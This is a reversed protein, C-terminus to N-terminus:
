NESYLLHLYTIIITTNMWVAWHEGRETEALHDVEGEGKSKFFHKKLALASNSRPISFSFFCKNIKGQLIGLFDLSSLAVRM